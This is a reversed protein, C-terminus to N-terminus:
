VWGILDVHNSHVQIAVCPNSNIFIMKLTYNPTASRKFSDASVIVTKLHMLYINTQCQGTVFSELYMKFRIVYSCATMLLVIHLLLALFPTIWSM